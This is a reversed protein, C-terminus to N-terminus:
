STRKGVARIMDTADTVMASIVEAVTPVSEILGVGQGALLPMEEFDGTTSTIPVFNSFRHLDLETGMLNVHGIV